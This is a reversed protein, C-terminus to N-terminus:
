CCRSYATQRIALNNTSRLKLMDWTDMRTHIGNLSTRANRRKYDSLQRRLYICAFRTFVFLIKQGVISAFVELRYEGEGIQLDPTHTRPMFHHNCAVGEPGVFLGSGPVLRADGHSWYYFPYRTQEHLIDVFMNEVVHGCKGSSYLLTRLFIKPMTKRDPTSGKEHLFAILTPRTMRLRGRRFLTLWAVTVSVLLSVVSILTAASRSILHILDSVMSM